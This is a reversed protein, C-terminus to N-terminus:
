GSEAAGCPPSMGSTFNFRQAYILHTQGLALAM